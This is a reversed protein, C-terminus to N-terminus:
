AALQTDNVQEQIYRDLDCTRSYIRSYVEEKPDEGILADVAKGCWYARAQALTSYLLTAQEDTLTITTM